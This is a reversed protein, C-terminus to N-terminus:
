KECPAKMWVVVFKKAQVAIEHKVLCIHTQMMNHYAKLLPDIQLEEPPVGRVLSWNQVTNEKVLYYSGLLGPVLLVPRRQSYRELRTAALFFFSWRQRSIYLSGGNDVAIAQALYNDDSANSRWDVTADPRMRIVWTKTGITGEQSQFGTLYVVGVPDAALGGLLDDGSGPQRLWDVTSDWRHRAVWPGAGDGARATLSGGSSGGVYIASGGTATAYLAVDAAASGAQVPNALQAGSTDYRAVFLDASGSNGGFLSGSTQGVVFIIDNGNPSRVIAANRAVTTQGASLNRQWAPTWSQAGSKRYRVLWGSSGSNNGLEGTIYIDGGLSVAVALAFDNNMGGFEEQWLVNGDADFVYVLADSGTILGQSDYKTRTGVAYLRDQPGAVLDVISEGHITGYRKTWLHNGAQDFRSLTADGHGKTPSDPSDSVFGGSYIDGLRSVAIKSALHSTTGIQKSWLLPPLASTANDSAPSISPTDDAAGPSIAANLPSSSSAGILLIFFLSLIHRSVSPM